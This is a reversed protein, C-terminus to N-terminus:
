KNLLYRVLKGSKVATAQSTGSLPTSNYSSRKEGIEWTNVKIGFNSTPSIQKTKTLNGVIYLRNDLNAPYFPANDLDSHNNGAAVVLKINSDLAKKILIQEETSFYSGGGSINIIDVKLDIAARLAKLYQKLGEADKQEPDYYKLVVQCYNIRRSLVELESSGEDIVLNKAYQDILGSVNTGHGHHDEIGTGTFDMHGTDCLFNANKLSSSIGTDIVAVVVKKRDKHLVKPLRYINKPGAHVNINVCSTLLLLSTVLLINRM